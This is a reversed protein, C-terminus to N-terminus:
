PSFAAVAGAPPPLSGDVFMRFYGREMARRSLLVDRAMERPEGRFWRDVPVGFGMKTRDIVERPLLPEM